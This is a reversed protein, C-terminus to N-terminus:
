ITGFATPHIKIRKRVFLYMLINWIALSGATAMATGVIGYKPTLIINFVINFCTSIALSYISFRQNGSMLLLMGVSGCVINIFQGFCLILLAERSNFFNVGFFTLISTRFFIIVLMVPIGMLLIIQASRTVLKQLESIEGNTFLRAILPALVFNVIVLGFSITESIKLVINYVGVEDNGKLMGLLFIDIRSNLIYLIGLLFFGVASHTWSAFEFRPKVNKLKFPISKQHLISTILLTVAIAVLNIWILENLSVKKGSYFITIVLIIILVPKIIKETVQSWIIKKFGQLSAQNILTISIMSLSSIALILWNFGGTYKIGGILTTIIESAFAIIFSGFVGASIGFFIVGKLKEFKGAAEYVPVNKVVLTDTGLICFNALLYLLNFIYVYSGYDNVGM